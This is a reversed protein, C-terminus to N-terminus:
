IKPKKKTGPTRLVTSDKLDSCMKRIEEEVKAMVCDIEKPTLGAAALQRRANAKADGYTMPTGSRRAAKADNNQM